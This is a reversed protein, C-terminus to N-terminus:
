DVWKVCTTASFITGSVFSRIFFRLDVHAFASRVIQHLAVQTHSTIM